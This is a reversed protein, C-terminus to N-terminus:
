APPGRCFAHPAPQVFALIFVSVPASALGLRFKGSM